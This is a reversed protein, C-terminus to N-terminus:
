STPPLLSSTGSHGLASCRGTSEAFVTRSPSTSFRTVGHTDSLSRDAEAQQEGGRQPEVRASLSEHYAALRAGEHAGAEGGRCGSGEHQKGEAAAGAGGRGGKGTGPYPKM